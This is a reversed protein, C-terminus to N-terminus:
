AFEDERVIRRTRFTLEMGGFYYPYENEDSLVWNMDGIQSFEGMLNNKQFREIIRQFIGQVDKHGDNKINRNYIGVMLIVKAYNGDFDQSAKGDNMRVIVYPFPENEDDRQKIPLEQEFLNVNVSEGEMNEFYLGKTISKIEKALEKQLFFPSSM